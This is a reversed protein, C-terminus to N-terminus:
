YLALSGVNSFIRLTKVFKCLVTVHTSTTISGLESYATCSYEGSEALSISNIQFCLLFCYQRVDEYKLEIICVINM